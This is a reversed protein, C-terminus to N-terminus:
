GTTGAARGGRRQAGGSTFNDLVQITPLEVASRAESDNGTVSLRTNLVFRRGIPGNQQLFM